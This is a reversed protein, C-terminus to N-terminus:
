LDKELEPYDYTRHDPPNARYMNSLRWRERTPNPPIDGDRYHLRLEHERAMEIKKLRRQVKRAPEFMLGLSSGMLVITSFTLFPYTQSVRFAFHVAPYRSVTHMASGKRPGLVHFAANPM